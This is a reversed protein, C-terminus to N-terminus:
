GLSLCLSDQSDQIEVEGCANRECLEGGDKRTVQVQFWFLHAIGKTTDSLIM